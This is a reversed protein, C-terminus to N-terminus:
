ALQVSPKLAHEAACLVDAAKRGHAGEEIEVARQQLLWLLLVVALFVRREAILLGELLFFSRGHLVLEARWRAKFASSEQSCSM